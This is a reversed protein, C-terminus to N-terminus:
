GEIVKTKSWRDHWGGDESFIFSLGDFPVLRCASRVLITSFSPVNGNEDVVKTRTIYKGLTKGTASEMILYYIFIVLYAFGYEVLKNGSGLFNLAQPALLSVVIALVFALVMGLLFYAVLDILHNAFRKGLSAQRVTVQNLIQQMEVEHSRVPDVEYSPCTYEFDAPKDTLKCVIGISPNFKQHQCKKCYTLQHERNM